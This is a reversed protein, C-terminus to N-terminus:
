FASSEASTLSLPVRWSPREAGAKSIMVSFAAAALFAKTSKLRSNSASASIVARLRRLSFFFLSYMTRSGDRDSTVDM